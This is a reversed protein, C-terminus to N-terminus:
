MFPLELPLTRPFASYCLLLLTLPPASPPCAPPAPAYSSHTTCSPLELRDLYPAPPHPLPGPAPSPPCPLAYNTGATEWGCGWGLGQGGLGGGM